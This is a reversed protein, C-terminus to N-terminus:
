AGWKTVWANFEAGFQLLYTVSTVLQLWQLCTQATHLPIAPM